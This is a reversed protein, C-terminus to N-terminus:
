SLSGKLDNRVEKLQTSMSMDLQVDDVQLIFGGILNENIEQTLEVTADFESAIWASLTAAADKEMRKVSTVKGDIIKNEHKFLQNFMRGVSPLYPERKHDVLLIFFDVTIPQITDSFLKHFMEKKASARILPSQLFLLFEPSSQTLGTLENLDHRVAEVQGVQTALQFLARAYRVAIRSEDM